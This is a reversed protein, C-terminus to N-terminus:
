TFVYQMSIKGSGLTPVAVYHLQRMNGTRGELVYGITVPVLKRRELLKELRLLEQHNYMGGAIAFDVRADDWMRASIERHHGHVNVVLSKFTSCYRGMHSEERSTMVETAPFMARWDLTAKERDQKTLNQM